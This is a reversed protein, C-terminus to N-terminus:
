QPTRGEEAYRRAIKAPDLNPPRHLPPLVLIPSGNPLRVILRDKSDACLEVEKRYVFGDHRGGFALREGFSPLCGEPLGGDVAKKTAAASEPFAHRFAMDAGRPAGLICAAVLTRFALKGAAKVATNRDQRWACVQSILTKFSPRKPKDKKDNAM